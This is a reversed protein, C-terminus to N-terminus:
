PDHRPLCVVVIPQGRLHTLFLVREAPGEKDLRLQRILEEPQLPSGRKKVTLRGVDREKLFSRLRKVGFPLWDEVQWDRALPTQVLFDATLYAIDADLQAAQLQRGLDQVLGARLIAPDPEYLVALPESLPLAEQDQGDPIMSHAGPLVTARRQATQLPGFWLVAEKLEGQYSIFEVEADYPRLEDLQVGPSIKVGLASCGPLWREIIALPPLYDSVSFARRGNRRRAPDFFMAMSPPFRLPLAEELDAQVFAGREGLGLAALNAQAMTLRLPDCDLGITPGREALALTDGGVSCGLDLLPIYGQYREARYSSVEWGSSQELAPRTFYMREARPFKSRAGARLIAIELADRALERPYQRSLTSLHRLFDAERPALSVATELAEQGGPQLLARFSKLDM